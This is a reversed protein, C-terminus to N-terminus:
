RRLRSSPSTMLKARSRTLCLPFGPIKDLISAVGGMKKMQELQSLFDNM